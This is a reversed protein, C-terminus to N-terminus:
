LGHELVITAGETGVAAHPGGDIGFYVVSLQKLHGVAPDGGMSENSIEIHRNNGEVKDQIQKTVDAYHGPIGYSATIIRLTM